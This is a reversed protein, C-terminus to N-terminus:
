KLVMKVASEVCHVSVSNKDEQEDCLLFMGIAYVVKPIHFCPCESDSSVTSCAGSQQM